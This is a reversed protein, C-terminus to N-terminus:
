PEPIVQRIRRLLAPDGFFVFPGIRMGHEGWRGLEDETIEGLRRNWECYVVGRWRDTSEPLRRLFQLRERQQPHECLYFGGEPDHEAMPVMYLPPDSQRLLDALEALTRPRDARPHLLRHALPVAAACVAFGM